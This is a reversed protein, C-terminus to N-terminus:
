GAGRAVPVTFSFTSGGGPTSQAWVRGGHAEVLAKVISLGVGAGGTRSLAKDGQYFPEFVRPLEEPPIGEGTDRVSVEVDSGTARAEILVTGDAPTHRIANQVLNVLVRQLRRTDVAVDPLEGHVSGQLHLGRQRAHPAMAELIDSVLDHLSAREVHLELVGADIQSLEFLDDIMLSLRAVEAERTRVYRRVTEPDSVVGDNISEAMARMSALPTRLDHSIAVVMGRRAQELEQQRAFAAELREAMLNFAAGLEALEDRGDVPVRTRLDGETMSRVAEGLMRIRARVSESLVVALVAALALAFVLVVTLLGLDHPSVFMLHGIFGVNAFTLVAVLVPSLLLQARVTPIVGRRALAPVAYGALLALVGTCFLFLGLDLLEQPPPQLILQTAALVLGDAALLVLLAVLPPLLRNM